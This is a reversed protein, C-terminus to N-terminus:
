LFHAAVLPPRRADLGLTYGAVTYREVVGVDIATREKGVRGTNAVNMTVTVAM